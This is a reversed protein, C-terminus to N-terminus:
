LRSSRRTLFALVLLITGVIMWTRADIDRLGDVFSSFANRLSEGLTSSSSGLGVYELISQAFVIIGVRLM